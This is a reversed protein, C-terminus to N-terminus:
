RAARHVFLGVAVTAYGLVVFGLAVLLSADSSGAARSTLGVGTARSEALMAAVAASGMVASLGIGAPRAWAHGAVLGAAVLLHAAGVILLPIALRLGADLAAQTSGGAVHGGAVSVLAIPYGVGGIALLLAGVGGLALASIVYATPVAGADGVTRTGAIRDPLSSPSHTLATVFTGGIPSGPTM